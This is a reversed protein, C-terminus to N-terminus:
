IYDFVEGTSPKWLFLGEFSGILYREPGFPEFVNVGMVSVPPQAPYAPLISRFDTSFAYVGELTAVMWQETQPDFLIRRLKDNWANPTDLISGPIKSVRANAIPILLPPRLFMGTAATVILFAVTTWGIKNHWRLSWRNFKVLRVVARGKRKRKRVWGPFFFYLIGTLSLFIFILGVVDVLLKGPIGLIEGSHITWLTKFLGTKGDYAPPSPLIIVEASGTSPLIVVSSRTLAILTDNRWALDMIEQEHGPLAIHEWRHIAEAYRYLGFLTAAYLQGDGSRLVSYIKRHDIGEPLGANFDSFTRFSRQTLWIGINGYLLLSDGELSETGRLAALNWNNYRYITPLASRSVDVPAFLERHNMVIGSLAFLILFLALVIGLWKHYKRWFWSKVRKKGEKM